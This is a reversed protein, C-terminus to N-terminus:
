GAWCVFVLDVGADAVERAKAPAEKSKPVEHWLLQGVGRARIETRLEELGGGLTKEAHALVAVRVPADGASRDAADVGTM